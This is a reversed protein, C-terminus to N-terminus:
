IIITIVIFILFKVSTLKNLSQMYFKEFCGNEQESTMVVEKALKVIINDTSDVHLSTIRCVQFCVFSGKKTKKIARIYTM